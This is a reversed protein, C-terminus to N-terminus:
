LIDDGFLDLWISGKNKKLHCVIYAIHLIMLCLLVVGCIACILFSHSTRDLIYPIRLIIFVLIAWIVSFFLLIKRFTMWIRVKSDLKLPKNMLTISFLVLFFIWIADATFLINLPYFFYRVQEVRSSDICFALAFSLFIGLIFQRNGRNHEDSLDLFINIEAVDTFSNPSPLADKSALRYKQRLNIKEDNDWYHFNVTLKNPVADISNQYKDSQYFIRKKQQIPCVCSDQCGNLGRKIEVMSNRNNIFSRIRPSFYWTFDPAIYKEENNSGKKIIYNLNDDDLDYKFNITTHVWNVLELGKPFEVTEPVGIAYSKRMSIDDRVDPEDKTDIDEFIGPVALSELLTDDVGTKQQEVWILNHKALAAAKNILDKQAEGKTKREIMKIIQSQNDQILKCKEGWVKRICGIENFFGNETNTIDENIISVPENNDSTSIAFEFKMRFQKVNELDSVFSLEDCNDSAAGLITATYIHLSKKDNGMFIMQFFKRLMIMKVSASIVNRMSYTITM